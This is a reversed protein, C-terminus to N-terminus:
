QSQLCAHLVGIFIKLANLFMLLAYVFNFMRLFTEMHCVYLNAVWFGKCTSSCLPATCRTLEAM